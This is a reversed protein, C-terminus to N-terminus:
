SMAQFRGLELLRYGTYRGILITAALLILLLEPFTFFLHEVIPITMVSYCLAAVALSGIAQMIAEQAGREDWIVSVREITMALIVMPFLAVSLGREFGLAHTVVSLAAMLIVVFILVSALRPVLLLKLQELYFRFLLGTAVVTAFLVIGWILQTERFAMAILVPMFTGLSKIGVINRLVVLLFIGLPVVMLIRYVTQTAVPLSFLSFKILGDQSQAGKELAMILEHQELRIKSLVTTSKKGGTLSTSPVGGTSWTLYSKPVGSEDGLNSFSKWDGDMFVEIWYEFSTTQSSSKLNIGSVRRAPIDKTALVLVAADAKRMAGGKNVGPDLIKNVNEKKSLTQMVSTVLTPVDSSKKEANQVFDLAATMQAETLDPAVVAPKELKEQEEPKNKEAVVTRVYVSQKGNAERKALTIKRNGNKKTKSIGYGPAVVGESLIDFNQDGAPIIISLKVPGGDAEFTVKKEIEWASTLRGPLVPLGTVFVKYLFVAAGIITLLLALGYVHLNRM